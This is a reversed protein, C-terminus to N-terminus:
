GAREEDQPKNIIDHAEVSAGPGIASATVNGGITISNDTVHIAANDRAVFQFIPPTELGAADDSSADIRVIRVNYEHKLKDIIERIDKYRDDDADCFSVAVFRSYAAREAKAYAPASKHVANWFRTNIVLKLELLVDISIGNDTSLTIVDKGVRPLPSIKINSAQCYHM